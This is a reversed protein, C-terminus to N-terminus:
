QVKDDTYMYWEPYCTERMGQKNETYMSLKFSQLWIAACVM